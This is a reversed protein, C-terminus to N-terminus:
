AGRYLFALLPNRKRADGAIRRHWHFVRIGEDIAPDVIPAVASPLVAGASRRLGECLTVVDDMPVARKRYRVAVMEAFNAM